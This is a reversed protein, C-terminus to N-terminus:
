VTRITAVYATPKNLKTTIRHQKNFAIPSGKVAVSMHHMVECTGRGTGTIYSSKSTSGSVGFGSYWGSCSLIKTVKTSTAQYKFENTLNAVPMGLVTATQSDRALYGKVAAPAGRLSQDARLDPLAVVTRTTESFDFVSAPDDNVASLFESREADTLAEYETRLSEAVDSPVELADTFATFTSDDLDSDALASSGTLAIGSITLAIVAANGLLKQSRM